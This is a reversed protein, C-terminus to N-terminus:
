RTGETGSAEQDRMRALAERLMLLVYTNPQVQPNARRFAETDLGAVECAFLAVAGSRSQGAECQAVFLVRRTRAQARLVHEVIQRAQGPQILSALIRKREDDLWGCQGRDREAVCAGDLDDFELLLHRPDPALGVPELGENRISVVWVDDAGRAVLRRDVLSDTLTRRSLAMVEVIPMAPRFIGRLSAPQWLCQM